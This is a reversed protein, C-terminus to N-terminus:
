VHPWPAPQPMGDVPLHAAQANSFLPTADFRGFMCNQLHRPLICRMSIFLLVPLTICLLSYCQSLLVSLCDILCATLLGLRSSCGAPSIFLQSGCRDYLQMGQLWLPQVKAPVLEAAADEALEAEAHQQQEDEDESLLAGEGPFTRRRLPDTFEQQDAVDAADAEVEPQQQQLPDDPIAAQSPSTVAADAKLDAASGPVSDSDQQQQQPPQPQQQPQPATAAAAAVQAHQQQQQVAEEHQQQALLAREHQQEKELADPVVVHPSLSLLLRRDPQLGCPNTAERSSSIAARALSRYLAVDKSM